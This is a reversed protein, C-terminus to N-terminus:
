VNDVKGGKTAFMRIYVKTGEEVQSEVTIGSEEGCYLKIRRNVNYLGFGNECDEYSVKNEKMMHNLRTVEKEEMGVGTDSILFVLFKEEIKGQITIVGGNVKNKIGHYIANEVIPQLTMKLIEYQMIDPSIDIVYQLIDNYRSQQIYLYSKVHEIEREVPIWDMGKSLGTKFFVSLSEIMEIAKDNENVAVLWMITDLTNYLFHPNIQSQLAKLEAKKLNQQDEMNKKLLEQIEKLMKNYQRELVGFENDHYVEVYANLNGKAAELMKEKLIWIPKTIHTAVIFYGIAFLITLFMSIVLFTKTINRFNRTLETLYVCGGLIAKTYPIKCYVLLVQRGDIKAQTYGNEEEFTINEKLKEYIENEGFLIEQNENNIMFFSGSDGLKESNLIKEFVMNKFEIAIYGIIKDTAPQRLSTGYLVLDEEEIEDHPVFILCDQQQTIQKYIYESKEYKERQYIGIKENYTTGDIDFLYINRVTKDILMSTRYMSIDNILQLTEKYREGKANLFNYADTSNGWQLIKNAEDILMEAQMSIQEGTNMTQRIVENEMMKHYYATYIQTIIGVLLVTLLLFMTIVQMRISSFALKLTRHKKEGM